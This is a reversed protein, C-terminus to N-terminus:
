GIKRRFKILEPTAGFLTGFLDPQYSEHVHNILKSALGKRRCDPHVAIRVSRVINFEGAECQVHIDVAAGHVEEAVDTHDAAVAHLARLLSNLKAKRRLAWEHGWADGRAEARKQAKLKRPDHVYGAAALGLM